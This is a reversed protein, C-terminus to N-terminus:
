LSRISDTPKAWISDDDLPDESKKKKVVEGKKRQTSTNPLSRFEEMKAKKLIYDLKKPALMVTAFAEVIKKSSPAGGEYFLGQAIGKPITVTVDDSNLARKIISRANNTLAKSDKDEYAAAAENLMKRAEQRHEKQDTVFKRQNAEMTRYGDEKATIDRDYRSIMNVIHEQAESVIESDTLDEIRELAANLSAGSLGQREKKYWKLFDKKVKPDPSDKYGILKERTTKLGEVAAKAQILKNKGDAFGRWDRNEKAETLINEVYQKVEENPYEISKASNQKLENIAHILSDEDEIGEFGAKEAITRISEDPSINNELELDSFIDIDEDKIEEEPAAEGGEVVEDVVEQSEVEPEEQGVADEGEPAQEEEQPEEEVIENLNEDVPIDEKFHDASFYSDSYEVKQIDDAM